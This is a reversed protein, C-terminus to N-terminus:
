LEEIEKESLNTSQMIIATPMGVKKLNRAVEKHGEARCKAIGKAM